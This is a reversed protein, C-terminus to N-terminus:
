SRWSASRTVAFDLYAIALLLVACALQVAAWGDHAHSIMVTGLGVLFIGVALRVAALARLHPYAWPTIRRRGQAWISVLHDPPLGTPRVPPGSRSSPINRASAHM